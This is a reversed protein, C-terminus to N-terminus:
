LSELMGRKRETQRAENKKGAQPSATPKNQTVKKANRGELRVLLFVAVFGCATAVVRQPFYRLERQPVWALRPCGMAGDPRSKRVHLPWGNDRCVPPRFEIGNKIRFADVVKVPDKQENKKWKGYNHRLQKYDVENKKTGQRQM